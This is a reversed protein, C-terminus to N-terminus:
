KLTRELDNYFTLIVRFQSKHFFYAIDVLNSCNGAFLARLYKLTLTHTLFLFGKFDRLINITAFFIKRM